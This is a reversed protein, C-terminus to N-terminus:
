ASCFSSPRCYARIYFDCISFSTMLTYLSVSSVSFLRVIHSFVGPRLLNILQAVQFVDVSGEAELQNMLTTLACFTGATVGGVSFPLSSPKIM